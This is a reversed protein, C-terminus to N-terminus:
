KMMNRIFGLYGAKDRNGDFKYNQGNYSLIFTPFGQVEYKKVLDKETDANHLVIKIVKGDIKNGNAEIENKFEIFGPKAQQCHGCWDAYFMRFIPEEVQFFERKVSYKTILMYTSYGISLIIILLVLSGVFSNENLNIMKNICKVLAIM